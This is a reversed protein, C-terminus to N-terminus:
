PQKDDRLWLSVQQPQVTNHVTEVLEISLAELDVEDRARQAFDALVRTADYKRRYFRRDILRQLRSRLPNFLVTILLTSLVIAAQSDQGTVRIFFAQLLTISTLFLLLLVATLAGYVLTRNIVVDIDWLRYRLISIMTTLPFILMIPWLIAFGITNLFVRMRVSQPPLLQFFLFFSFMSLVFLVLGYLVWKTQQRQVPSSTVRYRYIQAGLGLALCALYISVGILDLTNTLAGMTSLLADIMGIAFALAAVYRTAHPTFRGDPFLFLLLMFLIATIFNLFEFPTHWAPHLRIFANDAEVTFNLGILLITFSVLIGFWDDFRGLFIVAALALMALAFVIDLTQHFYAYQTLTFGAEQIFTADAISPALPICGDGTCVTSLERFLPEVGAIFLAILLAALALWAMRLVILLIKKGTSSDQNVTEEDMSHTSM